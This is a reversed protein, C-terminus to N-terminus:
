ESDCDALEVASFIRCLDLVSIGNEGVLVVRNGEYEYADAIDPREELQYLYSQRYDQDVIVINGAHGVAMLQGNRLHILSNLSTEIGTSIRSWSEGKNRSYYIRGRLGAIAVHGDGWALVDFFSGEYPSSLVQWTLGRDRSRYIHGAEGVIYLMDHLYHSIANLHFDHEENVFSEIWNNGGDRSVLYYGYAGVAIIEHSSVFVIDLLPGAHSKDDHVRSWSNGGDDMCVIVGEHGVACGTSSDFMQIATLLVSTQVGSQNWLGPSSRKLIHGYAGAAWVIDGAGDLSLLLSRDARPAQWSYDNKEAVAIEAYLCPCLIFFAACLLRSTFFAPVIDKIGPPFVQTVKIKM